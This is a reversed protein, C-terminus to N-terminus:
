RVTKADGLLCPITMAMIYLDLWVSHREIYEIDLAIRRRVDEATNLAGRSGKIQAWGTMGPKTRHRWAYEAVIRESDHGETKMGIAHPRPGVLSMDGALVNFLQPLEDLSTKRIFRGVRTVRPDGKTVQQAATHDTMDTRMSRFKWVGIAENNFGHRRQRFFIPGPSDLKIALAVILMIPAFLILAITAIVLDEIRQALAKRDDAAMGAVHTLPMNALRSIAARRQVETDADVILSVQNPLSRLKEAIAEVRARASTDIAIVIQDVFPTIKHGMLSQVNGLVPVGAIAQPSRSARDDFVGLINVERSDIATEILKQAHQTAGILVINPTLRGQRWWRRTMLWWASHLVCLTLSTAMWAAIVPLVLMGSPLTQALVLALVFGPVLSLVLRLLHVPLSESRTFRYLGAPGCALRFGLLPALLPLVDGIPAARWDPRLLPLACFVGTAFLVALDLARFLRVSMAGGTRHRPSTLREPRFPGRRESADDATVSVATATHKFSANM